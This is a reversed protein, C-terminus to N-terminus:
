SVIRSVEDIRGELYNLVKFVTDHYLQEGVTWIASLMWDNPAYAHLFSLFWLLHIPQFNHQTSFYKEWLDRVVEIPVGIAKQWSRKARSKTSINTAFIDLWTDLDLKTESM